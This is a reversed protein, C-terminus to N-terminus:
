RLNYFAARGPYSAVDGLDEEIRLLQNYKAMRDSRSLSGTKIQGANLGVAIDAITSDETEGSRHSIVATYGARKAMEIAAFTETLTGIQNIKILISNAINQDIGQKLIKTNTVFLDDGVLQVKKGLRETLLKWGAWDGEHMGDEISIIPYKDCWTALMDTWSAAELQLGGEGELVYKGDKYFESAACDLGLAIQEGATYGAKDIAELILQIAAEHNEVSPAFGGEDGVATPMGRSDIIKKLAHFVEAGYRLAERFSPAGVPIIMFEQLDLSNNAHAGGNIVNMMPVPLSMGGMGGFYRYLPLGSEEAAARAVAMSVALMANAGLRSKNETGDLDILTKDLFAQESADLGLVAESIETNVHEVAKLVGKGLYRGKDGDRLEIAERSGTSAGSPVAARGMTGSELLVDCEVTPNGRSDLIERGVIDVIASM